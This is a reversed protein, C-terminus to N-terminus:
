YNAWCCGVTTDCKTNIAGGDANGTYATGTTWTLGDNLSILNGGADPVNATGIRINGFAGCSVLGAGGDSIWFVSGLHCSSNDEMKIARQTTNNGDIFTSALTVTSQEQAQVAITGAAPLIVNNYSNVRTKYTSIESNVSVSGTLVSGLIDVAGGRGYIAEGQAALYCAAIESRGEYTSVAEVGTASTEMDSYRFSVLSPGYNSVIEFNASASQPGDAFDIYNFTIQPDIAFIQTAMNTSPFVGNPAADAANGGVYVTSLTYGTAAGADVPYPYLHSANAFINFKSAATPAPAATGWAISHPVYSITDKTNSVIPAIMGANPGATFSIFTGVLSNAILTGTGGGDTYGGADLYAYGADIAYNGWGGDIAVLVWGDYPTGGGLAGADTAGMVLGAPNIQQTSGVFNVSGTGAINYGELDILGKADMATPSGGDSAFAPSYFNGVDLNIYTNDLTLQPLRRITHNITQCATAASTCDNSDSGSPSVYVNVDAYAIGSLLLSLLVFLRNM